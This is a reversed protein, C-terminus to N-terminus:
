ARSTLLASENFIAFANKMKEKYDFAQYKYRGIKFLNLFQGRAALFLQTNGLDKFRRM